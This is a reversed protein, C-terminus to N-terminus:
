ASHPIYKYGTYFQSITTKTPQVTIFKQVPQLSFDRLHKQQYLVHVKSHSPQSITFLGQGHILSNVYPLLVLLPM